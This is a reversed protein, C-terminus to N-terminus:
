PSHWALLLVLKQLPMLHSETLGPIPTSKVQPSTRHRHILKETTKRRNETSRAALSFLLFTKLCYPPEPSPFSLYDTPLIKPGTSFSSFAPHMFPSTSYPSLPSLPSTTSIHIHARTTRHNYISKQKYSVRSFCIKKQQCIYPKLIPTRREIM